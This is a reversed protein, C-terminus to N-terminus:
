SSPGNRVISAKPESQGLRGRLYDIEGRLANLEQHTRGGLIRHNGQLGAVARNALLQKRRSIAQALFWQDIGRTVEPAVPALPDFSPKRIAEKGAQEGPNLIPM